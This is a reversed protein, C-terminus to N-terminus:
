PLRLSTSFCLPQTAIAIGDQDPIVIPIADNVVVSLQHRFEVDGALNSKGVAKLFQRMIKVLVAVTDNFSILEISEHEPNVVAIGHGFGALELSRPFHADRANHDRTARIGQGGCGGLFLPFVTATILAKIALDSAILKSVNGIIWRKPLKRANPQLRAAILKLHLM